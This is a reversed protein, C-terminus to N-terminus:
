GQDDGKSNTRASSVVKIDFSVIVEKRGFFDGFRYTSRDPSTGNEDELDSLCM